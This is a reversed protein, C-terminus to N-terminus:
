WFNGSHFYDINTFDLHHFRNDCSSTIVHVRSEGKGRWPYMGGGEDWPPNQGGIRWSGRCVWLREVRRYLGEHNRGCGM